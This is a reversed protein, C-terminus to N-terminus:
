IMRHSTWVCKQAHSFRGTLPFKIAARLANLGFESSGSVIVAHGTSTLTAVGGYWPTPIEGLCWSEGTTLSVAEVGTAVVGGVGFERPLSRQGGFVIWLPATREASKGGVFEALPTDQPDTGATRSSASSSSARMTGLLGETVWLLLGMASYRPTISKHVVRWSDSEVNYEQLWGNASFDDDHCDRGGFVYVHEGASTVSLHDGPPHPAAAGYRWHGTDDLRHPAPLGLGQAFHSVDSTVVPEHSGSAGRKFIVAKDFCTKDGFLDGGSSGGLCVLRGSEVFACGPGTRGEPMDALQMWQASVAHGSKDIEIAFHVAYSRFKDSNGGPARAPTERLGGLVHFWRKKSDWAGAAHSSLFPVSPLTWSIGTEADYAASLCSGLKGLGTEYVTLGLKRTINFGSSLFVLAGDAAGAAEQIPSPLAVPDYDVTLHHKSLPIVHSVPHAAMAAEYIVAHFDQYDRIWGLKVEGRDKRARDLLGHRHHANGILQNLSESSKRSVDRLSQSSLHTIQEDTVSPATTVQRADHQTDAMYPLTAHWVIGGAGLVVLTWLVRAIIRPLMIAWLRHCEACTIRTFVRHSDHGQSLRQCATLLLVPPRSASSAMLHQRLYM